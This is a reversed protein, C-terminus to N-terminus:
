CYKVLMGWPTDWVDGIGSQIVDCDENWHENPYFYVDDWGNICVQIAEDVSGGYILLYAQLFNKTREDYGETKKEFEDTWPVYKGYM